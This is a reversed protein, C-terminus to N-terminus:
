KENVIQPDIVVPEGTSKRVLNITYKTSGSVSCTDVLQVRTDSRRVPPHPFDACPPVVIPNTQAFSYREAAAPTLQFVIVTANRKVVLREPVVPPKADPDILVTSTAAGAAAIAAAAIAAQEAPTQASM